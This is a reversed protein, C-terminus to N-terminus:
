FGCDAMLLVSELEELLEDDIRTRKFLGGLQVRTRTLGAKLRETWSPRPPEIVDPGTKKQRLFSIM